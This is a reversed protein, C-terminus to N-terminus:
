KNTSGRPEPEVPAERIGTVGTWAPPDSAPFSERDAEEVPDASPDPERNTTAPRTLHSAPDGRVIVGGIDQVRGAFPSSGNETIEAVLAVEGPKLRSTIEQRFGTRDDQAILDAAQGVVAGGIAGIVAGAPGIALGAVAGILATVATGIPGEDALRRAQLRGSRDKEVVALGDLAISGEAHLDKLIRIGEAAQAEGPFVMAVLESM